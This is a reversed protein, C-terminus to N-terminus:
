LGARRTCGMPNGGPDLDPLAPDEEDLRFAYDSGPGAGPVAVCWWGSVTRTMNHKAGNVVVQVRERQPAWVTFDM